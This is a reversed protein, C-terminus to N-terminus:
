FHEGGFKPYYHWGSDRPDRAMTGDQTRPNLIKERPYKTPRFTKRMPVEHTGFNKEHTSRPDLLKERPCKTSGFQKRTPVDHTWFNKELTNSQESNKRTPIENTDKTRLGLITSANKRTPKHIM